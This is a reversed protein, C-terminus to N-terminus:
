WDKKKKRSLDSVLDHELTQLQNFLQPIDWTVADRIVTGSWVITNNGITLNM